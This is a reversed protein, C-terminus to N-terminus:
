YLQFSREIFPFHEDVLFACFSTHMRTETSHQQLNVSFLLTMISTCFIFFFSTTTIWECHLLWNLYVSLENDDKELLFLNHVWLRMFWESVSSSQNTAVINNSLFKQKWRLKYWKNQLTLYEPGDLVVYGPLALLYHLGHRSHTYLIKGYVSLM